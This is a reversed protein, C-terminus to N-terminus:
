AARRIPAETAVSRATDDADRGATAPSPDDLIPVIVEDGTSTRIRCLGIDELSRDDLRALEALGRREERWARGRQAARTRRSRGAGVVANAAAGIRGGYGGGPSNM